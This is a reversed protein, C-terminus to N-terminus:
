CRNFLIDLRDIYMYKVFIIELFIFIFHQTPSEIKKM